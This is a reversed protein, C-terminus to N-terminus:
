PWVRGAMSQLTDPSDFPTEAHPVPRLNTKGDLFAALADRDRHDYGSISWPPYITLTEFRGNAWRAYVDAAGDRAVLAVDGDTARMAEIGSALDVEDGDAHAEWVERVARQDSHALLADRLREDGDTMDHSVTDDRM